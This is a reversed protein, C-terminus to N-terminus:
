GRILGLNMELSNDECFLVPIEFIEAIPFM